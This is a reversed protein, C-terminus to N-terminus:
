VASKAAQIFDRVKALDKVGPASEVGSSVDVETAGTIKIAEGVNEPTLGGALLWPKTPAFEKLLTWDFAEGYGGARSAGKPPKADLLYGDVDPFQDLQALDDATRVGIAKVIKRNPVKSKFNAVDDPTEDGHLQVTSLGTSSNAFVDLNDVQRGSPQEQDAALNHVRWGGVIWAQAGASHIIQILREATQFDVYRPSAKVLVLGIRNAGADLAAEVAEQTRLGCVKVQVM